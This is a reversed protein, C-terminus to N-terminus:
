RAWDQIQEPLLLHWRPNLVPHLKILHSRDKLAASYEQKWHLDDLESLVYCPVSSIFCMGVVLGLVIRARHTVNEVEILKLLSMLLLVYPVYFFRDSCYVLPGRGLGAVVAAGGCLVFVWICSFARRVGVLIIGYIMLIMAVLWYMLGALGVWSAGQRFTLMAFVERFVSPPLVWGVGLRVLYAVYGRVVEVTTMVESAMSSLNFALVVAQIGCFATAALFYAVEAACHRRFGARVFHVPAFLIAYPNTVAILCHVVVRVWYSVSKFRCEPGILSIPILLSLVWHLDTLNFFVEACGDFPQFALTAAAVFGLVFSRFVGCRAIVIMVILQVLFAAYFFVVPANIPDFAMACAACLRTGMHLYGAYVVFLSRWGSRLLEAFFINGDEAWFQPCGVRNIAKLVLLLALVLVTVVLGTVPKRVNCCSFVRKMKDQCLDM